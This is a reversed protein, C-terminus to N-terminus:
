VFCLTLVASREGVANQKNWLVLWIIAKVSERRESISWRNHGHEEDVYGDWLKVFPFLHCVPPRASAISFMTGTEDGLQCAVASTRKVVHQGLFDIWSFWRRPDIQLLQQANPLSTTTLKGAALMLVRSLNDVFGSPYM